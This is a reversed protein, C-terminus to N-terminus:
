RKLHRIKTRFYASDYQFVKPNTIKNMESFRSISITSDLFVQGEGEITIQGLDLEEALLQCLYILLFFILFRRM